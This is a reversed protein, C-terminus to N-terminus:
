GMIGKMGMVECLAVMALWRHGFIVLFQEFVDNKIKGGFFM